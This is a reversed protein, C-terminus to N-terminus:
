RTSEELEKAVEDYIKYIPINSEEFYTLTDGRKRVIVKLKSFEKPYYKKFRKIKTKDKKSLYGKIEIWTDTEPLYVDPLYSRTGFKIEEFIFRKPEYEWKIGKLNFWRLVVAEWESRVSVGLDKRFGGKFFESGSLVRTGYKKDITELRSNIADQGKDTGYFVELATKMDRGKIGYSQFLNYITGKSIKYKESLDNTSLGGLYDKELDDKSPLNSLTSSIRKCSKSCWFNGSKNRKVECTYRFTRGRCMPSSCIFYKGKKTERKGIGLEQLRKSITSSSKGLLKSLYDLTYRFSNEILFLDDIRSWTPTIIRRM